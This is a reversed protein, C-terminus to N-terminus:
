LCSDSEMKAHVYINVLLNIQKKVCSLIDFVSTCILRTFKRQEIKKLDELSIGAATDGSQFLLLNLSM